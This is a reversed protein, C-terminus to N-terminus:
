RAARKGIRELVLHSLAEWGSLFEVGIRLARVRFPLDDPLRVLDKETTLVTSQPRGAELHLLDNSSIRHLLDIGDPGSLRLRSRYSADTMGAGELAARVERAPDRFFTPVEYGFIGTM